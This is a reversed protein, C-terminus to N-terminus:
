LHVFKEPNVPHGNVRVEFHLHPGTAMGTAGVKAIVQGQTVHEGVTVLLRSCHAYLTAIGGGHDVIVVNGYGRMYQAAIVTGTAAVHISTGYPAGLDIGTHMRWRHLIPHFRMGFPSTIPAIVPRIFRGNFPQSGPQGPVQEAEQIQNQIESEERNFERLAEQLQNRKSVIRDLVAVKENRAAQIANEKAALSAEQDSIEAVLQDIAEKQQVISNQVSVFRNLVKADATAMRNIFYANSAIDGSSVSGLFVSILPASGEEYNERNSEEVRKRNKFLAKQNKSLSRRLSRQSKRDTKLKQLTHELKSSASDLAADAQNLSLHAIRAYHETRRLSQRLVQKKHHVKVLRSKLKRAKLRRSHIIEETRRSKRHHVTPHAIAWCVVSAFLFIFSTNTVWTRTRSTLRRGVELPRPIGPNLKIPLLRM